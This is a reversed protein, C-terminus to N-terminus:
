AGQQHPMIEVVKVFATSTSSPPLFRPPLLNSRPSIKIAFLSFLVPSSLTWSAIITLIGRKNIRQPCSVKYFSLLHSKEARCVTGGQSVPLKIIISKRRRHCSSINTSLLANGHSQQSLLFSTLSCMFEDSRKSAYGKHNYM